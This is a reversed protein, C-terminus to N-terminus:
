FKITRNELAVGIINKNDTQKECVLCNTNKKEKKVYKPKEKSKFCYKDYDVM